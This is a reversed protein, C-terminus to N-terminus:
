ETKQEEPGRNAAIDYPSDFDEQLEVVPPVVNVVRFNGCNNLYENEVRFLSWQGRRCIELLAIGLFFIEDDVVIGFFSPSISIVWSVRLFFNSVM